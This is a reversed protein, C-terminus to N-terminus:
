GAAPRPEEAAQGAVLVVHAVDDDVHQAGQLLVIMRAQAAEDLRLTFVRREGEPAPEVHDGPPPGDIVHAPLLLEDIPPALLVGALLAGPLLDDGDPRVAPQGSDPRRQGVEAGGALEKGVGAVLQRGGLECASSRQSAPRL